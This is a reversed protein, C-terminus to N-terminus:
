EEADLSGYMAVHNSPIYGEGGSKSRAWWWDEDDSNLIYLLDRKKFELDNSTRSLYNYKAMFLPPDSTNKNFMDDSGRMILMADISMLAKLM